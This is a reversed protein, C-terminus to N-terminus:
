RSRSPQSPETRGRRAAGARKPVPHRLARGALAGTPTGRFVAPRGNVFVYVIGEAYQHPDSFTARDTLREPDFVVLDAAYGSRLYGRDSLGLIDAPLGTASRVAQELSLVHERLAYRGIKRPFTGYNRPHPRDPGPLRSGGDSATAVWPRKMVARVDQENMGFNVMSAGGDRLITLAVELPEVGEAVAIESLRKGVWQPHRRCQAVLLSEGGNRKQLEEAMEKRIRPGTTPDALRELLRKLGGARAWTPVLMASLSTSSATYPYQDATVSQGQRRAQEIRDAAKLVLGWADRGSSKFHSIHVPVGARRGITLAEEVAELLKTGENRIHSAYLGGFQAVVRALQVLEDTDAYSSPVYILGTSMGWAGDLMGQRVLQQMKRIEKETAPREQSGVVFGRVSGQPVLHAVNTGAGRADIKEYFAKVDVPGGGCNGTVVTTCGQTVYNINARTEPKEIEGDCHTHLDIFGPSVVLGRCDLVWRADKVRFRGVAVIRDGRVAVDGVVAPRGTGDVLTGGKLLLDAQVPEDARGTGGAAWLLVLGCLWCTLRKM